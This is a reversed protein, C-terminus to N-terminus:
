EYYETITYRPATGAITIIGSYVKGSMESFAGGTGNDNVTGAALVRNFVTTSGGSGERVFLPNTGLNQIAWGARGPNAELATTASAISPISTTRVLDINPM